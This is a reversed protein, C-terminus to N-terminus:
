RCFWMCTQKCPHGAGCTPGLLRSICMCTHQKFTCAAPHQLDSSEKGCGGMLCLLESSAPALCQLLDESRCCQAAQLKLCWCAHQGSEHQLGDPAQMTFTFRLSSGNWLCGHMAHYAATVFGKESGTHLEFLVSHQVPWGYLAHQVVIPALHRDVLLHHWGFCALRVSSPTLM